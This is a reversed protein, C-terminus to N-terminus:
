HMLPDFIGKAQTQCLPSHNQVAPETGFQHSHHLQQLAKTEM